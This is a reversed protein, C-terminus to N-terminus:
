RAGALAVQLKNKFRASAGRELLLVRSGDPSTRPIGTLQALEAKPGVACNMCDSLDILPYVM